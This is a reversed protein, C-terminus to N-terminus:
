YIVLFTICFPFLIWLVICNKHGYFINRFSFDLLWCSVCSLLSESDPALRRQTWIPSSSSSRHHRSVCSLLSESDPALRRQTWIPLRLLLGTIAFSPSPGHVRRSLFGTKGFRASASGQKGFRSPKVPYNILPLCTARLTCVICM